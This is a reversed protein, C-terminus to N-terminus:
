RRCYDALYLNMDEEEEASLGFYQRIAPPSCGFSMAAKSDFYCTHCNTLIVSVFYYCALPSLGYKMNLKLNTFQFLQMVKGFGWEVAMRQKAMYTNFVSEDETLPIGRERRYAGIVGEELFFARDGFLYVRDGDGDWAKELVIEQMGDKWMAWDGRRGEYPGELCSILEDPTVVALYQLSHMHKHGSYLEEQDVTEPRPRCVQKHTGDIFGWVLGSPEGREQTKACYRSITEPTLQHDNWRLMTKFRNNIHVCTHNFIVSLWGREHGFELMCDKLRLPWALRYCVLALATTPPAAYRDPFTAPVDLLYTMECIQEKTFRLFELCWDDSKSFLDFSMGGSAIRRQQSWFRIIPTPGTLMAM